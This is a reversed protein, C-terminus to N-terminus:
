KLKSSEPLCGLQPGGKPYPGNSIGCLIGTGCRKEEGSSVQIGGTVKQAQLSSEEHSRHKQPSKKIVTWEKGGEEPSAYTLSLPGVSRQEQNFHHRQM